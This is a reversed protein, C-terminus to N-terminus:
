AILTEVGDNETSRLQIKIRNKSLTIRAKQFILVRRCARKNSFESGPVSLTIDHRLIGIICYNMKPM